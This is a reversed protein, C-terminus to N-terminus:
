YAGIPEIAVRKVFRGKKFLDYSIFDGKENYYNKLKLFGKRDWVVWTGTFGKSTKIPDYKQALLGKDISVNLMWEPLNDPMWYAQCM